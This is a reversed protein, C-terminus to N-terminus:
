YDHEIISKKINWPLSNYITTQEDSDITTRERDNILLNYLIRALNKCEPDNKKTFFRILTRRQAYLSDGIFDNVTKRITQQKILKMQNLYNEYKRHLDSSSYILLDKIMLLDVFRNFEETNYDEENLYKYNPNENKLKNLKNNIFPENLCPLM